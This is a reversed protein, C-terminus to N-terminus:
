LQETNQWMASNHHLPDGKKQTTWEGSDDDAQLATREAIEKAEEGTVKLRVLYEECMSKM